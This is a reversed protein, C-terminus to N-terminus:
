TGYDDVIYNAAQQGSAFASGTSTIVPYTLYNGAFYLGAVTARQNPNQYNLLFRPSYNKILTRHHWLPSPTFGFLKKFDALYAAMLEEPTKARFPEYASSLNTFFNLVTKHETGITPNLASLMFIGGFSYRPKLCSLLYFDYPIKEKIEVIVSLADLYTNQELPRTTYNSFTQFIHPPATNIVIRAPRNHEAGDKNFSVGACANDEIQVRTVAANTIIEGGLEVIRKVLTEVLVKTWDTGAMFGLPKSFERYHLRSGLWNASLHESPLGYKIDMLPDFIVERVRRGAIRDLWDRANGLDMNWNSKIFCYLMLIVFRFKAFIPLPFKLFDRPNELNYIKEDRAFFVKGKGRSVRQYLGLKKLIKLLPKDEALIHHYGLPYYHDKIKFSGALGGPENQAELITCPFGRELLTLAAGLGSMGAGIIVVPLIKTQAM